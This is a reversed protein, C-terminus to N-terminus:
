VHLLGENSERKEIGPRQLGFGAMSAAFDTGLDLSGDHREVWHESQGCSMVTTKASRVQQLPDVRARMYKDEAFQRGKSCTTDLAYLDGCDNLENFGGSYRTEHTVDVEYTVIIKGLINEKIVPWFVPLSACITAINVELASVIAATCGYWSPDLTPYTGARTEVLNVLRIVSCVNVSDVDDTDTVLAKRM